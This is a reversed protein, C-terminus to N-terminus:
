QPPLTARILRCKAPNLACCHDVNAFGLASDPNNGEFAVHFVRFGAAHMADILAQSKTGDAVGDFLRDHLEVLVQCIPVSRLLGEATWAAIIDFEAGEVDLKLVDVHTHNLERMITRLSRAPLVVHTGEKFGLAAADMSAYSTKFGTPKAMTIDGDRTGLLLEVHRFQPLMSERNAEWWHM